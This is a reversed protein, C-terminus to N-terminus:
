LEVEVDIFLAYIVTDTVPTNSSAQLEKEIADVAEKFNQPVKQTIMFKSKFEVYPWVQDEAIWASCWWCHSVTRVFSGRM